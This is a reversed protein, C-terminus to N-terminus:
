LFQNVHTLCRFIMLMDNDDYIMMYWWIDDYIMMSWWIDDYIMMYWWLQLPYGRTFMCAVISCPWKYDTTGNFLTIKWLLNHSNVLNYKFCTSFVTSLVLWSKRSCFLQHGKACRPRIRNLWGPRQISPQVNIGHKQYMNKVSELLNWCCWEVPQYNWGM